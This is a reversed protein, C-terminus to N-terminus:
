EYCSACPASFFSPRFEKVFVIFSSSNILFWRARGNRSPIYCAERIGLLYTSVKAKM